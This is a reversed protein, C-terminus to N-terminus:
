VSPPIIGLKKKRRSNGLSRSGSIVGWGCDRSGGPSRLFGFGGGLKKFLRQWLTYACLTKQWLCGACWWCFSAQAHKAM